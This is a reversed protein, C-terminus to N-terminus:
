NVRAAQNPSVLKVIELALDFFRVPKFLVVAAGAMLWRERVELMRDGTFGIIIGQGPTQCIQRTLAIGDEGGVKQISLNKDIIIFDWKQELLAIRAESISNAARTKAGYTEFRSAFAELNIANDEVLLVSLGDFRAPLRPQHETVTVPGSNPSIPLFPVFVDFFAGGSPKNRASIAGGMSSEVLRKCLPLGLGSSGPANSAHRFPEFLHALKGEPIGVGDDEVTLCLGASSQHANVTVTCRGGHKISNSILNTLVQRLRHQAGFWTDSTSDEVVVKIRSGRSNAQPTYILSCDRLLDRVSFSVGQDRAADSEEREGELVEDVVGMIHTAIARLTRISAEHKLTPEIKSAGHKTEDTLDDLISVLATLPNRLEHNVSRLFAIKTMAEEESHITREELDENTKSLTLETNRRYQLVLYSVFTFGFMATISSAMRMGSTIAMPAGLLGNLEAWGLFLILAVSCLSISFGLIASGGIMALPGLMSMWTLNPSFTGGHAFAIGTSGAWAIILISKLSRPYDKTWAGLALAIMTAAAIAVDLYFATMHHSIFYNRANASVGYLSVGGGVWMMLRLFDTGFQPKLVRSVRAYLRRLPNSTTM